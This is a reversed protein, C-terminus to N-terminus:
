IVIPKVGNVEGNVKGNVQAKSTPLAGVQAQIAEEETDDDYEEDESGEEEDYDGDDYESETEDNELAGAGAEAPVRGQEQMGRALRELANNKKRLQDMEKNFKTREEAMELINRNTLDQKRTLALNEKELRKTKKSMEEMEKRFTLFLDNSNNLTDEVQKFKEVYINLQSRLETETNSFTSVQQSLNRVKTTETDARRRQDEYRALNLQVEGEKTRMLAHYHLERLEYQEVFSKFKQRFLEDQDVNGRQSGPNQAQDTTDNVEWLLAETRVGYEERSRRENDEVKKQEDKLKNNERQLERCLKELKDKMATTKGLESRSQEREKQLQDSRKKNKTNERDVRKMDALLETYRKQVTELRSLPNEMGTLLNNLDKTAKKVEREIDAFLGPPMETLKQQDMASIPLPRNFLAEYIRPLDLAPSTPSLNALLQEMTELSPLGQEVMSMKAGVDFAKAVEAIMDQPLDHKRMSALVNGGSAYSLSFGGIEAEQNKEAVADLELQSIKAALLKGTENQDPAKKGKAKKATPISGAAANAAPPDPLNSLGNIYDANDTNNAAPSSRANKLDKPTQTTPGAM